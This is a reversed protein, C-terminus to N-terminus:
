RSVLEWVARSLGAVLAQGSEEGVDVTTLVALVYAPGDDPRVLGVDHTIGEVWGTKNAVYTRAPLGAPIGDRHEQRSLVEELRACAQEPLLTRDAVGRLVLGLDAATVLNNLGAERAAMDEIGRVVMTAPSCGADVLVEAVAGAGVHELVLNTALNGSNVLSHEVLRRLSCRSGVLAWTEDDQDEDQDLSYPSGDAASAFRNHVEVERDLDVLGHEHLRYAAAALPLKMTSAAYHVADADHSVLVRGHLDGCWVSVTGRDDPADPLTRLVEEVIPTLDRASNDTLRM